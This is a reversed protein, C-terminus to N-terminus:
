AVRRRRTAVLGAIGALGVTGPTPISEAMRVIRFESDQPNDITVTYTSAFGPLQRAAPDFDFRLQKSSENVVISAMPQSTSHSSLNSDFLVAALASDSYNGSLPARIEFLLSTWPQSTNNTVNFTLVLTSASATGAGALMALLATAGMALTRKTM